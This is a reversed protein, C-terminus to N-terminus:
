KKKARKYIWANHHEPKIRNLAAWAVDSANYKSLSVMYMGKSNVIIEGDAPSNADMFRRANEEAGFVGAILYYTTDSVQASNYEAPLEVIEEHTEVEKLRLTDPIETKLQIEPEVTLIEAPHSMQSSEKGTPLLDFYFLAGAIICLAAISSIFVAPTNSRKHGAAKVKGMKVLKVSKQPASDLLAELEPSPLVYFDDDSVKTIACVGDILLTGAALSERAPDLWKNYAYEIDARPVDSAAEMRSIVSCEECIVTSFALRNVPFTVEDGDLESEQRVVSLTGLHPLSVSEHRALSNFVFRNIAEM